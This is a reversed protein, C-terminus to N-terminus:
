PILDFYIEGGGEKETGELRIRLLYSEGEKFDSVDLFYDPKDWDWGIVGTHDDTSIPREGMLLATEHVIIKTDEWAKKRFFVSYRGDAKIRDSVDISLERIGSALEKGSWEGVPPTWLVTGTKELYDRHIGLRSEFGDWDQYDVPSWAREAIALLRPYIMADVRSPVRDIHSWFNGQVGLILEAQEATLSEPIPEYLYMTKLPIQIPSFDLYCHSVPSMVVQHGSTAGEIGGEIGRWSMVVADQGVHGELIEDWGVLKRNKTQLWDGIEQIFWGFLEEENNLGHEEMRNQCKPCKEWITMPTEDGGVHIYESPFIELVEELVNRVFEFTQDNGACLLDATKNPGKFFPFIEFPGGECSLHPYCSVAAFSHGPMEIEPVITIGRSSAYEVLNRLEQKSYFGQTHEPEGFREAFRSGQNTLEPYRDIEIRWGQDDTLHLHLVNMKYYSMNEITKRLYDLSQFTRSCDLMLGRWQFRPSDQISVCPIRITESDNKSDLDRNNLIQKFTQIGYFLGSVTSASITIGDTLVDLRYGEAASEQGPSELNLLIGNTQNDTKTHVPLKLDFEEQFFGGLTKALGTTGPGALIATEAGLELTGKLFQISDPYPILPLELADQDLGTRQDSQCFVLFVCAALFFFLRFRM